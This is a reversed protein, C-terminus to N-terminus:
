GQQNWDDFDAYFEDVTMDFASRFADKWEAGEGRLAWFEILSREGAADVLLATAARGLCYDVGRTTRGPPEALEALSVDRGRCAVILREHEDQSMRGREMQVLDAVYEANGEAMWAPPALPLLQADPYALQFQLVHFLEHALSHDGPRRPSGDLQNRAYAGVSRPWAQAVIGEHINLHEIPENLFDTVADRLGDIETFVFITAEEVEIGFRNQFVENVETISSIVAHEFAGGGEDFVFEIGDPLEYPVGEPEASEVTPGSGLAQIDRHCEDNILSRLERESLDTDVTAVADRVVGRAALTSEAELAEACIAVAFERAVDLSDNEAAEATPEIAEEVSESPAAADEEAPDTDGDRADCGVLVLAVGAVVLAARRM